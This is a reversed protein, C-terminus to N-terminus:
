YSSYVEVRGSRGAEGDHDKAGVVIEQIGNGDFDCGALSYAFSGGPEREGLIRLYAQSGAELTTPETSYVWPYGTFVHVKAGRPPLSAEGISGVAVDALGDGNVDGVGCVSRGFQELYNNEGFILVTKEDDYTLVWPYTSDSGREGLILYAMGAQQDPNGGAVTQTSPAGVLLDETGGGDFDGVRALSFGFDGNAQNGYFRWKGWPGTADIDEPLPGTATGAQILYVMGCNEHARNTWDYEWFEPEDRLASVALIPGIASYGFGPLFALSYGMWDGAGDSTIKHDAQTAYMMGGAGTSGLFIYAKGSMDGLADNGPAGVALDTLGDGNFDVGGAVSFGFWDMAAEGKLYVDARPAYITGSVSPGGFYIYVAGGQDRVPNWIMGPAGVALDNYGDGNFDGLGAISYGLREEEMWGEIIVSAQDGRLDPHVGPGQGRGYFIYVAGCDQFVGDWFPAGVALDDLGDGNFDGINVVSHGFDDGANMGGFRFAPTNVDWAFALGCTLYFALGLGLLVRTVRM